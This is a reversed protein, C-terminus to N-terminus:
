PEAVLDNLLNAVNPSGLGTPVDYGVLAKYGPTNVGNDNSGGVVPVVDHFDNAYTTPNAALAYLDPNLFGIPGKGAQARAQNV